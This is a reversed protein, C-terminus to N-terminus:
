DPFVLELKTLGRLVLTERYEFPDPALVPAREFLKTLAIQGELRALMAGLCFHIGLSFTLHGKASRALDLRDPDPFVSPDRNAAALLLVIQQGAEIEMGSLVVDELATRLTLQVPPDYRLLEEVAAAPHAHLYPIQDPNALLARTGNGILSVVTEHGAVLLVSCISLLEQITLGEVGALASLLDSAPKARRREALDTFYNAFEERARTRAEREESSLIVDPDQGRALASSWSRFRAQDEAPVGLLESIIIVPLPYALAAIIDVPGSLGTLLEDTTEAIGPRLREVFPATFAGSVLRRLRTHDPPNMTAFSRKSGGTDRWSRDGHGFRSDRLVQACLQYSTTVWLGAPTRALKDMRRYQRYPDARFDASLPDFGLLDSAASTM